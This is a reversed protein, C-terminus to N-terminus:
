FLVGVKKTCLLHPFPAIIVEQQASAKEMNTKLSVIEM